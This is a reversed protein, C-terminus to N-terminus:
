RRVYVGTAAITLNGLADVAGTGQVVVIQNKEVGLLERADVPLVAGDDDLIKVVALSDNASKDKNCFHCDCDAGHASDEDGAMLVDDGHIVAEDIVQDQADFISWSCPELDREQWDPEEVVRRSWTVFFRIPGNLFGYIAKRFRIGQDAELGLYECMEQPAEGLINRELETEDSQAFLMEFTM